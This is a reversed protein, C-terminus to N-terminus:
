PTILLKQRITLLRVKAHMTACVRFACECVRERDWVRVTSCVCVQLHVSVCAYVRLRECGCLSESLPACKEVFVRLHVIMIVFARVYVRTRLRPRQLCVCVLAFAGMCSSVYVCSHVFIVCELARVASTHMCARVCERARMFARVHMCAHVVSGTCACM